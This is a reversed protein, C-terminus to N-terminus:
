NKNFFWHSKTLQSIKIYNHLYNKGPLSKQGRYFEISLTLLEIVKRNRKKKHFNNTITNDLATELSRYSENFKRSNYNITSEFMESFEYKRVSKRVNSKLLIGNIGPVIYESMTPYDYALVPTGLALSELFSFGIGESPRPAVYLSSTSIYKLHKRRSTTQFELINSGLTSIGQPSNTRILIKHDPFNELFSLIKRLNWATYQGRDWYYIVKERKSQNFQSPLWYQSYFSPHGNIGLFNHLSSSFALFQCGKLLDWHAKGYGASGDIMPVIVVNKGAEIFGYALFDFQFFVYLDYDGEFAKLLLNEVNIKTPFYTDVEGFERLKQIFFLSSMTELHAPHDVFCIRM